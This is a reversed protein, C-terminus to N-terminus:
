AVFPSDNPAIALAEFSVSFQGAPEASEQADYLGFEGLGTTAMVTAVGLEAVELTAVVRAHMEDLAYDAAGDNAGSGYGIVTFGFTWFTEGPSQTDDPTATTAVVVIRPVEGAVDVPARRTREVPIDPFAAVLAAEVAEMVVHRLPHYAVIVEEDETLLPEGDETLLDM